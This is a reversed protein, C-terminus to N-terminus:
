KEGLAFKYVKITEQATKQWSYNQTIKFGKERLSKQLVENKLLNKLERALASENEPDVLLAGKGAIERHVPINSALVPTKCSFAELIPLGFGEYISYYVVAKAANLLLNLIKDGAGELIYVNSTIKEKIARKEGIIVLKLDPFDSSLTEFDKIVKNINKKPVKSNFTVIFPHKIGLIKAVRKRAKTKDIAKFKSSVAYHTVFVKHQLQPYYKLLEKKSFESPVIIAAAKKMSLPLLTSFITREQLSFLEPHKKFAFDHVTLVLKAKGIIPGIYTAHIVDAKLKAAVRPLEFFVRGFDNKIKQKIFFAQNKKETKRAYKGSTLIKVDIEKTEILGFALNEIYRENGGEKQGLM